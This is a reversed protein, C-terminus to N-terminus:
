SIINDPDVSRVVQYTVCSETKSQTNVNGTRQVSYNSFKAIRKYVITGIVLIIVASTVVIAIIIGIHMSEKESSPTSPEDTTIVFRPLQGNSFDLHCQTIYGDRDIASVTLIPTCCTGSINVNVPGKRLGTINTHELIVTSDTNTDILDLETGSFLVDIQAYWQYKNCIPIVLSSENCLGSRKPIKCTPREVDTVAIRKIIRQISESTSALSVTVTYTYLVSPITPKFVFSGNVSEGANVSHITKIPQVLFLYDDSIDVKYTDNKTGTNMLHYVIVANKGLIADTDSLLKLEINTPGFETSMTRTYSYGNIDTGNIKLQFVQNPTIIDTVCQMSLTTLTQTLPYTSLLNGAMDTVFVESCTWNEYQGFIDFVYRYTKDVIPNGKLTVFSDKGVMDLVYYSAQITSQATINIQLQTSTKRRITYMKPPANQLSLIAGKKSTYMRAYKSNTIMVLTGNPYFLEINEFSSIGGVTIKLNSISSDVVFQKSDGALAPWNFSDIIIEATPFTEEIVAAAIAGINDKTSNYVTGGTALALHQFFEVTARRHIYHHSRRKRSCQGTMMTSITIKKARAASEVESRRNEDKADADTFVFLTSGERSLNVAKLIGDAAFEPCDGGGDIVVNKLKEIMVFGDKFVFAQNLEVPDNFLSLVYDVPENESNHTSTVLQTVTERIASIEERMSGSNDVAIAM